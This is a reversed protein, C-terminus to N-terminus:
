ILIRFIISIILFGIGFLILFGSLTMKPEPLEENM